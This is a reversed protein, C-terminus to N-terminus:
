YWIRQEGPEWDTPISGPLVGARRTAIRHASWAAASADLIDVLPAGRIRERPPSIGVSELLARREQSGETTAKPWSLPGGRMARFSVEPHVEYVAAGAKRVDAVEKIKRMLAFSQASLGRGGEPRLARAEPYTAASLAWRPPADFVANRRAGLLTRAERDADRIGQDNLGMPIDAAIVAARSAYEGLVAQFERVVRVEVFRGARLEVACWGGPAADVGVVTIAAPELQASRDAQTTEDSGPAPVPEDASRFLELLEIQEAALPWVSGQKPPYIRAADWFARRVSTAIGIGVGRTRLDELLPPMDFLFVSDIRVPLAQRTPGKPRPGTLVLYTDAGHSSIDLGWEEQGYFKVNVTKGEFPGSRFVGDYGATVGSGTLEIDFISAAIEEGVNGTTVARGILAGVRRDISNRERILLALQALEVRTLTM